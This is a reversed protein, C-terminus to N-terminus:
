ASPQYRPLSKDIVCTNDVPCVAICQPV